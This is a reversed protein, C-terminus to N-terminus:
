FKINFNLESVAVTTYERYMVVNRLMVCCVCCLMVYRTGSRPPYVLHRGQPGAGRGVFVGEPDAGSLM